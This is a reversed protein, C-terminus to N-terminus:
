YFALIPHAKNKSETRQYSILFLHELVSTVGVTIALRKVGAQPSSRSRNDFAIEDASTRVGAKVDSWKDGRSGTATSKEEGWAWSQGTRSASLPPQGCRGLPSLIPSRPHATPAAVPCSIPCTAADHVIYLSPHLRPRHRLPFPSSIM